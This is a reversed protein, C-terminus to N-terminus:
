VIPLKSFIITSRKQTILLRTYGVSFYNFLFPSSSPAFTIFDFLVHGQNNRCLTKFDQPNMVSHMNMFDGKPESINTLHKNSVESLLVKLIKNFLITHM